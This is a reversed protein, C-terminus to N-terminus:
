GFCACGAGPAPFYGEAVSKVAEEDIEWSGPKKASMALLDMVEYFDAGPAEMTEDDADAILSVALSPVEVRVAANDGYVEEEALYQNLVKRLADKLEAEKLKYDAEKEKYEMIVLIFTVPRLSFVYGGGCCLYVFLMSGVFFM